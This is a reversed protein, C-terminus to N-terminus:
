RKVRTIADKCNQSTSFGYAGICTAALGNVDDTNPPPVPVFQTSQEDIIPSVVRWNFDFRAIHSGTVGTPLAFHLSLRSSSHPPATESGRRRIPRGLPLSQGDHTTVEVHSSMVDLRLTGSTVNEVIMEIDLIRASAGLEDTAGESWVALSGLSATGSQLQYEASSYVAGANGSEHIPEFPVTAAGCGCVLWSAFTGACLM